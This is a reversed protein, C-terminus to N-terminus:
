IRKVDRSRDSVVGRNDDGRKKACSLDLLFAPEAHISCQAVEQKVPRELLFRDMCKLAVDSRPLRPLGPASAAWVPRSSVSLLASRANKEHDTSIAQADGALATARGLAGM